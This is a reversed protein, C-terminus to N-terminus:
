KGWFHTIKAGKNICNEYDTEAKRILEDNERFNKLDISKLGTLEQLLLFDAEIFDEYTYFYSLVKRIRRTGMGPINNLMLLSLIQEKENNM